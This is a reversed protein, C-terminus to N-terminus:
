IARNEHSTAMGNFRMFNIVLYLFIKPSNPLTQFDNPELNNPGSYLEYESECYMGTSIQQAKLRTLRSGNIEHVDFFDKKELTKGLLREKKKLEDM